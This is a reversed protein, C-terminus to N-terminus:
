SMSWSGYSVSATRLPFSDITVVCRNTTSLDDSYTCICLLVRMSAAAARVPELGFWDRHGALVLRTRLVCSATSNLEAAAVTDFFSQQAIMLAFMTRNGCRYIKRQQGGHPMCDCISYWIDPIPTVLVSHQKGPASATMGRVPM